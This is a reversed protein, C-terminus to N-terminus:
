ELGREEIRMVTVTYMDEATIEINDANNKEEFTKHFYSAYPISLDCIDQM